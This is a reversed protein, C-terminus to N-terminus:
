ARVSSATSKARRSNSCATVMESAAGTFKGSTCINVAQIYFQIYFQLLRVEIKQECHMGFRNTTSDVDLFTIEQLDDGGVVADHAAQARASLASGAAPVAAVRYWATFGRRLTGAADLVPLPRFLRGVIEGKQRNGVLAQTHVTGPMNYHLALHRSVITGAVVYHCWQFDHLVRDRQDCSRSQM